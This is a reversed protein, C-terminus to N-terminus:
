VLSLGVHVSHFLGRGVAYEDDIVIFYDDALVHTAETLIELRFGRCRRKAVELFHKEALLRVFFTGRPELDM